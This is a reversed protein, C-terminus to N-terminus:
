EDDDSEAALQEAIKKKADAIATDLAKEAPVAIDPTVGTGEWNTKTIPNIARAYPVSMGFGGALEVFNVPHAGGGTTEGVITARKLNKLNYTFEEAASFTHGSTLVYVPVDKDFRRGSIKEDTWTETTSDNPRNYFSNLHTKKKFFYSSIFKIMEPSGGGNDRIDFIVASSYASFALAGGAVEMAMPTPDFSNLKIYAINGPLIEVKGFGFNKNAQDIGRVSTRTPAGHNPSGALVRLHKDHCIARLDDTLRRALPRAKDISDYTGSSLNKDLAACMKDAVDPFVYNTKLQDRIAEVVSQKTAADLSRNGKASEAPDIPGKIAIGDLGGEPQMIFTIEFAQHDNTTEVLVTLELESDDLIMKPTAKGSQRVVEMHQRIRDELSRRGAGVKARHTNEFDTWAETTNVAVTRFYAEACLGVPTKPLNVKENAVVALTLVAVLTGARVYTALFLM